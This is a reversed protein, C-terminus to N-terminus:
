GGQRLLVMFQLPELELQQAAIVTQGAIIDVLVKKLGLQRLRPAKVIQPSDSM